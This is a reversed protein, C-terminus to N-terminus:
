DAEIKTILRWPILVQGVYRGDQNDKMPVLRFEEANVLVLNLPKDTGAFTGLFIRNDTTFVRLTRRLLPRL